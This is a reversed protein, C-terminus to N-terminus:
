CRSEHCSFYILQYTKSLEHLFQKANEIKVDDMNVFPDDLVIFPKEKDFLADILALRMCLDIINKYGKSYYDVDRYKGYEEFSINFDIDLKLNEFDKGTILSLYKNLGNKMPELFKTSLSENAMELFKKANKIANFEKNLENLENELNEKQSELDDLASIDDQIKNIKAVCNSKYERYADIQKQYESEKSQLKNIDVNVISNDDIDFNKEKKFNDLEEQEKKLKEKLNSIDILTQKLLALNDLLDINKDLNFQELFNEVKVKEESLSDRLENNEKLNEEKQKKINEFDKRNLIINNIATNYDTDVDEFCYLFKEIEKQLKLCENNNSQLQEYNLNNVNKTKVNIMNVLYMFGSSLLLIGGIVLLIVSVMLYKNILVAGLILSLLSLIAFLGLLKSKKNSENISKQQVSLSEVQNKLSNYNLIKDSIEKTKEATPIDNEDGFYKVLSDYKKNVYEDKEKLKLESERKSVDKAINIYSDIEPVSTNKGNFINEKVRITKNTEAVENSLKNYLDKNAIKQQAKSYEKIQTKIESQEKLLKDIDNDYLDVQKQIDNIALASTNLETIQGIVDEIKNEILQIQGSGKNNSLFSRKKDLKDQADEYNYNDTTGQILNTLKNSISENISSNLVKQPIFASREFAEEDLEFVQEGINETYDKSEKGTAIDILSFTDESNNKGFFREIRYQKGNIEFDINGGFNGGQWPTYKKRENEDLNRKTTSPLGYFMSKIFTAFTSKGWGNEEKISNFGESFNFEFNNLKGFNEIHCKILKM